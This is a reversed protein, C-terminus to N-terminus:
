GLTNEVIEWFDDVDPTICYVGKVYVITNEYIEEMLVGYREPMNLTVSKKVDVFIAANVAQKAENMTAFKQM